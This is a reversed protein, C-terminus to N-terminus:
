FFFGCILVTHLCLQMNNVNRPEVKVDPLTTSVSMPAEGTATEWYVPYHGM